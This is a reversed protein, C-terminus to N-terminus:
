DNSEVYVIFTRSVQLKLHGNEITLEDDDTNTTYNFWDSAEGEANEFEHESAESEVLNGIESMIEEDKDTMIFDRKFNITTSDSEGGNINSVNKEIFNLQEATLKVYVIETFQENFESQADKSYSFSHEAEDDDSDDLTIHVIGAEGQYHGDSNVYFNVNDYIVRDFFDDLDYNLIIKDDKDYYNMTTDNMSDGGCNFDFEARVIGLEKWKSIAEQLNM